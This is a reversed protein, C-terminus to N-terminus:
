EFRSHHVVARAFGGLHWCKVNPDGLMDSAFGLIGTMIAAWMRAASEQM